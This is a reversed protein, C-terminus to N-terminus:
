LPLNTDGGLTGPIYLYSSRGAPCKSYLSVKYSQGPPTQILDSFIAAKLCDTGACNIELSSSGSHADSSLQFQYDGKFDQGTQSWMWDSYCMLGSEFGGNNLINQVQGVSLDAMLYVGMVMAFARRMNDGLRKKLLDATTGDLKVSPNKYSKPLSAEWCKPSGNKAGRICIASRM